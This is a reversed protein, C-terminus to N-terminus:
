TARNEIASKPAFWFVVLRPMEFPLLLPPPPPPPPALTRTLSPPPLSPFPATRAPTSTSPAVPLVREHHLTTAVSKRSTETLPRERENWSVQVSTQLRGTSLPMCYSPSFSPSFSPSTAPPRHTAAAVVSSSFHYVSSKKKRLQQSVRPM